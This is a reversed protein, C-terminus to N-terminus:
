LITYVLQITNKTIIGWYITNLGPSLMEGQSSGDPPTAGPLPNIAIIFWDAPFINFFYGCFCATHM